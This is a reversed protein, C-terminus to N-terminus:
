GEAAQVRIRLREVEQHLNDREGRLQVEVGVKTRMFEVETKELRQHLQNNSDQLRELRENAVDAERQLFAHREKHIM